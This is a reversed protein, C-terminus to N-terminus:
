TLDSPGIGERQFAVRLSALARYVRNYVTKANPWGVARAVDAAAMGEVVFLEVALRIDDPQSAMAEAIRQALEAAEASDLGPADAAIGESIAVRVRRGTAPVPCPAALQTARVERLFAPFPLESAGRSRITEYAERHSAGDLCIAQYIAHHLPSLHAPVNHRNRGDRRRLWDIALNRVVAVLWTAVRAHPPGRDSYSRLRAFDNATLAECVASFVDMVDDDDPLLRRITALILRRYREAFLDWAAQSRGRALESLWAEM